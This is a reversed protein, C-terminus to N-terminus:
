SGLEFNAFQKDLPTMLYPEHIFSTALKALEPVWKKIFTQMQIM